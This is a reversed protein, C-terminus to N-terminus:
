DVHALQECMMSAFSFLKELCKELSSFFNAIAKHFDLTGRFTMLSCHLLDFLVKHHMRVWAFWFGMVGTRALFSPIPRVGFIVEWV